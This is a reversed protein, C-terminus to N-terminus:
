ADGERALMLAGDLANGRSPVFPLGLRDRWLSGLGGLYVLPLTGGPNLHRLMAHIDGQMRDLVMEALPDGGAAVEPALRALDAPGAADAFGVVGHPGGLRDLLRQGLPTIGPPLGDVARLLAALVARGIGAGGGEDGLVWGWGGALTITGGQQVAFVSGTGFAAVVGDQQGLAGRAATWGDSEVRARAFPLAALVAAKRTGVNGGALGLGAAVQDPTVGAEAMVAGAVDLINRIATEPASNINAPGGEARALVGGAADTLVTRCGSGGGDVGLYFTM